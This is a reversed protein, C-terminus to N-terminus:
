FNFKTIPTSYNNKKLDIKKQKKNIKRRIKKLKGDPEQDFTRIRMEEEPEFVGEYEQEHMIKKFGKLLFSRILGILSYDFLPMANLRKTLHEEIDIEKNNALDFLM